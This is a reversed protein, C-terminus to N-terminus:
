NRRTGFFLVKGSGGDGWCVHGEPEEGVVQAKKGYQKYIRQRRKKYLEKERMRRPTGPPRPQTKGTETTATSQVTPM